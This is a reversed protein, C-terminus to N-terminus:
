IVNSESFTLVLSFLIYGSATLQWHLFSLLLSSQIDEIKGKFFDFERALFPLTILRQVAMLYFSNILSKLCPKKPIKQVMPLWLQSIGRGIWGQLSATNM